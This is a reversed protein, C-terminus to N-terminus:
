PLLGFATLQNQTLVYVRGNAVLPVTFKSTASLADGAGAQTSNYLETSLGSTSYARLTAANISPEAVASDNRQIAWLIGNTASNSSVAM